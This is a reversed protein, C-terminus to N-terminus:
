QNREKEEAEHIFVRYLRDENALAADLERRYYPQREPDYSSGNKKMTFITEMKGGPAVRYFQRYTRGIRDKRLFCFYIFSIVFAPIVVARIKNASSWGEGEMPPPNIIKPNGLCHLCLGIIGFTITVVIVIRVGPYILKQKLLYTQRQKSDLVFSRRDCM